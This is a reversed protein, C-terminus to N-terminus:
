GWTQFVPWGDRWGVRAALAMRPWRESSGHKVIKDGEWAHYVFWDKGDPGVVLCGHGPGSWGDHSTLVPTPHKEFPGTASPARAVGTCYEATDYEGAAYFLYYRGDRAVVWPGEVVIGEWPLDNVFLTVPDAAFSLGDASLRRVVIPTPQKPALANHDGKYYLWLAGDKPDVFLHADIWGVAEDVVLPKGIDTWPGEIAPATAAGIALQGCVHRASFYCIFRGDILHIEPAWFDGKAWSPTKGRPFIHGFPETWTVLDRSRRLPFKDPDEDHNSTSALVYTGDVLRTVCPDPTNARILPNKM